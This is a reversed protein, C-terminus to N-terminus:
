LSGAAIITWAIGDFEVTCWTNTTLAKTTAALVNLNFSGAGTRAIHFRAGPPVNSTSLVVNRAASLTGTHIITPANTLYVLGLNADTAVVQQGTEKLRCWVSSNYCCVGAGGGLDGVYVLDGQSPTLASLTAITMARLRHLGEGTVFYRGQCSFGSATIRGWELAGTTVVLPGGDQPILAFDGTGRHLINTSGNTGAYRVWRSVDAAGSGSYMDIYVNGAASRGYGLRLKADGGGVGSGTDLNGAMTGGALPLAGIAALLASASAANMLGRMYSSIAFKDVTGAGTFYPAADAAWILAVIAALKASFAQVGTGVDLAAATGLVPRGSLDGYAGSVAVSALDGPQVASDALTHAVLMWVGGLAEVTHPHGAVIDGAAVDQGGLRKIARPGSGNRDLTAPGSNTQAPILHLRDGDQIDTFGENVTVTLADATGGAVGGWICRPDFGYPLQLKRPIYRPM